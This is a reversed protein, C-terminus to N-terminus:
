KTRFLIGLTNPGCHCTITCSARTIIIEGFNQYKQVTEKVLEITEESCGSHTIFLRDTLIDDRDKLRDTVYKQLVKNLKGRYKKGVDMKGDIVEITPKINLLNAGIAQLPTCRGGKRLYDLTDIVFSTEYKDLNEEIRQVIEEAAIGEEAWRKADLIQHGTGTSLNDSNVVYVNDFNQAAIRANQHSSSFQEGINFHIIADYDEAYKSFTETYDQISGAATKPLRGTKNVFAFIDDPQIDISDRYTEEDLIIYLPVRDIDLEEYMEPTLDATSDCTIKINAM